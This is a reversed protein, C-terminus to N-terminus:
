EKNEENFSKKFEELSQRCEEKIIGSLIELSTDQDEQTEGCLFSPMDGISIELGSLQYGMNDYALRVHMDERVFHIIRGDSECYDFGQESLVRIAQRRTASCGLLLIHLEEPWEAGHIFFYETTDERRSMLLMGKFRKEYLFKEHDPDKWVELDGTGINKAQTIQIIKRLFEAPRKEFDDAEVNSDHYRRQMEKADGQIGRYYLYMILFATILYIGWFHNM